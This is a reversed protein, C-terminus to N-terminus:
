NKLNSLLRFLIKLSVITHKKKFKFNMKNNQYQTSNVSMVLCICLFMTKQPISGIGTQVSGVTGLYFKYIKNSFSKWTDIWM